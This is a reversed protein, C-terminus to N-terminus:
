EGGSAISTQMMRCHKSFSRLKADGDVDEFVHLCPVDRSAPNNIKRWHM